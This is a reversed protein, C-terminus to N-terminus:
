KAEEITGCPTGDLQTFDELIEQYTYSHGLFFAKSEGCHVIVGKGTGHKWKVVSGVPCTEFTWPVYKPLPPAVPRVIVYNCIVSSDEATRVDGFRDVYADGAITAGIRVLEWGEPIGVIKSM